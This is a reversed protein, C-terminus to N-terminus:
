KSALNDSIYLNKLDQGLIPHFKYNYVNPKFLIYKVPQYLFIWPAKEILYKELENYINKRFEDAPIRLSKNLMSDIKKDIISSLNVTGIEKKSHFLPGFFKEPDYYRAKWTFHYLDSKNNAVSSSLSVIDNFKNLNVIFGIKELDKKIQKCVKDSDDNNFYSLTLEANKGKYELIKDGNYDTLGSEYLLKKAKIPNYSYMNNRNKYMNPFYLPTIGTLEIGSYNLVNNILYSKDISYNLAQRVKVNKLYAKSTNIGLFVSILEPYKSISFDNYYPSNLIDTFNDNEIKKVINEIDKGRLEVQNLENNNFAELQKSNEIVKYVLKNIKPLNKEFFLDNKELEISNVNINKIKFPGTGVPHKGFEKGWKEIEEIPVISFIPMALQKLYLPSAKDFKIQLLYDDLVIIGSLDKEKLNKICQLRFKDLGSIPLDKFLNFTQRYLVPNALREISHKIDFATLNRGNHFYINKRIKFNYIKRDSSINWEEAISPYINDFNDFNYDVLTNYINKIIQINSSNINIPDLNNIPKSIAITYKSENAFSNIGFSLSFIGILFIEKIKM